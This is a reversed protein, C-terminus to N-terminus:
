YLVRVIELCYIIWETRLVTTQGGRGNNTLTCEQEPNPKTLFSFYCKIGCGHDCFIPQGWATSVLRNGFKRGHKSLFQICIANSIFKFRFYSIIFFYGNKKTVNRNKLANQFDRCVLIQIFHFYYM